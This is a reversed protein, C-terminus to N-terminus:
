LKRCKRCTDRHKVTPNRHCVRCLQKPKAPAQKRFRNKVNTLWKQKGLEAARVKLVKNAERLTRKRGDGDFEIWRHCERCLSVLSSPVLGLLTDPGYDLHHVQSAAGPCILCRPHKALKRDRIAKWDDSALYEQYGAYGLDSLRGNRREYCRMKPQRKKKAKSCKLYKILRTAGIITM